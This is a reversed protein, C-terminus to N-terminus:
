KQYTLEWLIEEIKEKNSLNAKEVLELLKMSELIDLKSNKLIEKEKFVTEPTGELVIKGENMVMIKDALLAEQLNHTISIVTKQGKLQKIVDIVERVGKPDLMSTAEDFIIVEPNCALIGAIAVRQKEGGSLDEPNYDMFQDMSVLKSYHDIRKLMEEHEVLRNELGFAIDDKVTVGVFQNDPNQFVIGIKKRLEDVTSEDLRIGDIDISGSNAKLLGVLLKALTSKGSGNHGLLCVFDGKKIEFSVDNVAQDKENYRYFVNRVEIINM